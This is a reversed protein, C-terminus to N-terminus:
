LKQKDNINLFLKSWNLIYLSVMLVGFTKVFKKGSSLRFQEVNVNFTVKADIIVNIDVLPRNCQIHPHNAGEM